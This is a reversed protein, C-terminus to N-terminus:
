YQNKNAVYLYGYLHGIFSALKKPPFEIWNDDYDKDTYCFLTLNFDSLLITREVENRYTSFEEFYAVSEKNIEKTAYKELSSILKSLDDKDHISIKIKSHSAQSCDLFKIRLNNGKKELEINKNNIVIIEKKSM